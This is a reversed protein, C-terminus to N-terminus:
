VIVNLFVLYLFANRLVRFVCEIMLTRSATLVAKEMASSDTRRKGSRM